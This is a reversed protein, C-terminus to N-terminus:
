LTYGRSTLDEIQEKTLAPIGMEALQEDTYLHQLAKFEPFKQYIINIRVERMTRVFSQLLKITAEKKDTVDAIESDELEYDVYDKLAQAVLFSKLQEKTM